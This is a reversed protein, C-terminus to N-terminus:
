RTVVNDVNVIVSISTRSSQTSPHTPQALLFRTADTNMTWPLYNGSYGPVPGGIYAASFLPRPTSFALAPGDPSFQPHGENYRAADAFM